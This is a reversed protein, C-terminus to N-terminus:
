HAFHQASCFLLAYSDRYRGYNTTNMLSVTLLTLMMPFQSLFQIMGNRSSIKTNWTMKRLCFLPSKGTPYSESFIAKVNDTKSWLCGLPQLNRATPSLLPRSRLELSYLLCFGSTRPKPPYGTFGCQAVSHRRVHRQRPM